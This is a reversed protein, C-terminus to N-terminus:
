QSHSTRDIVVGGAEVRGWVTVTARVPQVGASVGEADIRFTRVGSIEQVTRTATMTGDRVEENVTPSPVEIINQAALEAANEALTQAVVRSRFRQAARYRTASEWLLLAILAYYLMALVLVSLLVFGREGKGRARFSSRTL